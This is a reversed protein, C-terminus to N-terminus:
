YSYAPAGSPSEQTRGARIVHWVRAQNDGNTDGVRTDGAFRYLPRGQHAIKRKM